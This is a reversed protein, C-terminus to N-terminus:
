PAKANAAVRPMALLAAIAPEIDALCHAARLQAQLPQPLSPSGACLALGYGPLTPYSRLFWRQGRHDIEIEVDDEAIACFSSLGGAVGEGTAKLLSEKRSWLTVFRHRREAHDFRALWQQEEVAFFRKAIADWDRIPRMQEVDVGVPSASFALAVFRGSHSLNFHLKPDDPYFPKGTPGREVQIQALPQQHRHSILLRPLLAAILSRYRDADRRYRLIRSQEEAPLQELLAAQAAAWSELALEVVLLGTQITAM